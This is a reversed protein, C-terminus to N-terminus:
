ANKICCLLYAKHSFWAWGHTQGDGQLLSEFSNTPNEYFETSNKVFIQLALVLKM